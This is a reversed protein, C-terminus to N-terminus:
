SHKPYQRVALHACGGAQSILQATTRMLAGAIDATPKAGQLEGQLWAGSSTSNSHHVMSCVTVSVKRGRGDKGWGLRWVARCEGM